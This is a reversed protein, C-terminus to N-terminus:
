LHLSTRRGDVADFIQFGARGAPRGGTAIYPPRDIGDPIVRDPGVVGPAVAPRRSEFAGHCRKLKSGSGCWCADNSRRRQMPATTIPSM